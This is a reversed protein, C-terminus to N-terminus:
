QTAWVRGRAYKEADAPTAFRGTNVIEDRWFVILRHHGNQHFIVASAHGNLSLTTDAPKVLGGRRNHEIWNWTTAIM